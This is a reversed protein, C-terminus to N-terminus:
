PEYDIGLKREENQPYEVQLTTTSAIDYVFLDGGKHRGMLRGVIPVSFPFEYTVTVAIDEDWKEEHPIPDVTVSIAHHAYDYKRGLYRLYKAEVGIEGCYKEYKALYKSKDENSSSLIPLDRLGSAFPVFARKAAKEIEDDKGFPLWVIGTRAAAFSAYNTGLKAVLM